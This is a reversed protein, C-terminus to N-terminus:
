HGLMSVNKNAIKRNKELNIEGKTGLLFTDVLVIVSDKDSMKRKLEPDYRTTCGSTYICVLISLVAAPLFPGFHTQMLKILNNM